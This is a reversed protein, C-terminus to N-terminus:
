SDGFNILELRGCAEIVEDRILDLDQPTIIPHNFELQHLRIKRYNQKPLDGPFEYHDIKPWLISRVKTKIYKIPNHM